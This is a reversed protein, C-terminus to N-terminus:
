VGWWYWRTKVRYCCWDATDESGDGLGREHQATWGVNSATTMYTVNTTTTASVVSASDARKRTFLSKLV